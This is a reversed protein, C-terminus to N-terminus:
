AAHREVLEGAPVEVQGQDDAFRITTLGGDGVVKTTVAVVERVPGGKVSIRDSVQVDKAKVKM